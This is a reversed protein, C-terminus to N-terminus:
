LDFFHKMPHMQQHLIRIIFVGYDQIRYFVAHQHHDHRRVGTGIESCEYGMLPSTALLNFASELHDTYKDAQIVGFNLLTYEYIATFDEVALNSLKYM